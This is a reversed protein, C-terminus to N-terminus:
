RSWTFFYQRTHPSTDMVLVGFGGVGTNFGTSTTGNVDVAGNVITNNYVEMGAVNFMEIAFDWNLDGLTFDQKRHQLYNDHIKLGINYGGQWYKVPWGNEYPPKNQIISDNYLQFGSQCRNSYERFWDNWDM